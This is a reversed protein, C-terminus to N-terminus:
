NFNNYFKGGSELTPDPLNLDPIDLDHLEVSELQKALMQMIAKVDAQSAGYM